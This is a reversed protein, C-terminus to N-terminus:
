RRYADPDLEFRKMWRQVQMRAKGMARAVAALNGGHARLQEVLAERLAADRAAAEAGPEALARQV